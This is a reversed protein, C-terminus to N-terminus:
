SRSGKKDSHDVRTSGNKPDDARGPKAGENPQEPLDRFARLADAVGQYSPHLRLLYLAAREIGRANGRAETSALLHKLGGDSAPSPTPPPHRYLAFWGEEPPMPPSGPRFRRRGFPADECAWAYPQGAELEGILDSVSRTTDIVMEPPKERWSGRSGQSFRDLRSRDPVPGTGEDHWCTCAPDNASAARCDTDRYFYQWVPLDPHSEIAAAMAKVLRRAADVMFERNIQISALWSRPGMHGPRPRPGILMFKNPEAGDEKIEIM